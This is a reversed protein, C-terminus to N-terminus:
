PGEPAGESASPMGMVRRGIRAGLRRAASRLADAAHFMGVRPDPSVEGEDVGVSEEARLDGSDRAPEAGARDVVWGRGVLSIATARASPAIAGSVGAVTGRSSEDARLVEVEVRPYGEGSELAGYRALEERLGQAVEDAAVADAVLSRVLKVHLREGGASTRVPSYGCGGSAAAALAAWAAIGNARRM